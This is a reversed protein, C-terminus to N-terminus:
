EKPAEVELAAILAATEAKDLNVIASSVILNDSGIVSTTLNTTSSNWREVKIERNGVKLIM